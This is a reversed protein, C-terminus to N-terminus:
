PAQCSVRIHSYVHLDSPGQPESRHDQGEQAKFWKVSRHYSEQEGMLDLSERFSVFEGRLNGVTREELHFRHVQGKDRFKDVQV